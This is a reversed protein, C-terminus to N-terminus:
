FSLNSCTKPLISGLFTALSVSSDFMHSGRQFGKIGVILVTIKKISDYSSLLLVQTLVVIKLGFVTWPSPVCKNVWFVLSQLCFDYRLGFMVVIPFKLIFKLRIYCVTCVCCFCLLAVGLHTSLYLCIGSLLPLLRGKCKSKAYYKILIPGLLFKVPIPRSKVSFVLSTFCVKFM